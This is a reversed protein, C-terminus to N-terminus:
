EAFATTVNFIDQFDSPNMSMEGHHCLALM